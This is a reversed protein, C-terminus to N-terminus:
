EPSQMISAQEEEGDDIDGEIPVVHPDPSCLHDGRCRGRNSRRHCRGGPRHSKVPHREDPGLISHRGVLVCPPPDDRFVALVQRHFPEDDAAELDPHVELIAFTEHQGAAVDRAVPALVKLRSRAALVTGIPEESVLVVVVFPEAVTRSDVHLSRSTYRDRLAARPAALVPDAEDADVIGEDDVVVHAEEEPHPRAIHREDRLSTEFLLNSQHM